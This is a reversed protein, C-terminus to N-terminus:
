TSEGDSLATLVEKFQEGFDKFIADNKELLNKFDKDMRLLAEEIRHDM